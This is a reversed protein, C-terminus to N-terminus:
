SVQGLAVEGSPTAPITRGHELSVAFAWTGTYPAALGGIKIPAAIGAKVDFSGIARPTRSGTIQWLVYIENAPNASMDTPQMWVEGDVVVVKGATQHGKPTVLTVESCTHPQQQCMALPAPPGGSTAALGGWVGGAAIVVAAAAALWRQRRTGRPRLRTVGPPLEAEPQGSALQGSALEGAEPEGTEPGDALPMGPRTATHQDPRTAALIRLGLQESPEAPPATEALAAAVASFEAMTQQCDPCDAAHRLFRQEDAPELANLAYGAALEDFDTHGASRETM